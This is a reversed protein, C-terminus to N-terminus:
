NSIYMNHIQCLILSQSAYRHTLEEDSEFVGFPKLVEALKQSLKVDVPKPGELSIPSTIGPYKQGVNLQPTTM